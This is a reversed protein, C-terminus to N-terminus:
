SSYFVLGLAPLYTDLLVFLVLGFLAPLQIPSRHDEMMFVVPTLPHEEGM